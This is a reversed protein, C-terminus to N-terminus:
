DDKQNLYFEVPVTLTIIEGTVSDPPVPLPEARRVLAMTEEDLLARGSGHVINAALVHGQRDMRFHLMATGEQHERQAQAPYRKYRELRALLASQWTLPDHSAHASAAGPASATQVAAAPADASPPATTQRAPPTKDPVVKKVHLVTKNKHKAVPRKDERPVPVPPNPAPSLPASVLPPTDPAAVPQSQIQQPGPPVDAPMMIATTTVPALDIAIAAPPPAALPEATQPRNISLVLASVITVVAIFSAGRLLKARRAEQRLGTKYWEQFSYSGARQDAGDFPLSPILVSQFTISM